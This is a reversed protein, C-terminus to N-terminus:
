NNAILHNKYFAAFYIKPNLKFDILQITNSDTKDKILLKTDFWQTGKNENDFLHNSKEYDYDALIKNKRAIKVFKM